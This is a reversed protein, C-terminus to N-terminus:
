RGTKNKKSLPHGMKPAVASAIMFLMWLALFALAARVPTALLGGMWSDPALQRVAWTGLLALAFGSNLAIGTPTLNRVLASEPSAGTARRKFWLGLAVVAMCSAIIMGIAFLIPLIESM